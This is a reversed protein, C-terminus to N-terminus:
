ISRRPSNQPAATGTKHVIAVTHLASSTKGVPQPRVVPQSKTVALAATRTQDANSAGAVKSSKYPNKTINFEKLETVTRKIVKPVGYQGVSTLIHKKLATAKFVSPTTIEAPTSSRRQRNGTSLTFPATITFRRERIPQEITASRKPPAAKKQQTLYSTVAKTTTTLTATNLPHEQGKNASKESDVKTTPIAKKNTTSVSHFRPPTRQQFTLVSEAMTLVNSKAKKHAPVAAALESIRRKKRETSLPVAIDIQGATSYTPSLM